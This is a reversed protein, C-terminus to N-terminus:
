VVFLCCFSWCLFSVSPDGKLINFITVVGVFLFLYQFFFKFKEFFGWFGCFSMFLEFRSFDKEFEGM